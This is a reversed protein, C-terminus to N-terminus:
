KLPEGTQLSTAANRAIRLNMTKVIEVTNVTARTPRTPLWSEGDGAPATV